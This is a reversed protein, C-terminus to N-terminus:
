FLTCLLEGGVGEEAAKKGSMVGKPTTLIATGLGRRVQPLARTTHYVRCGPTSERRLETIANRGDRDYKLHLRLTARHGEGELVEVDQLYGEDKMTTAIAAKLRSTPVDVYSKRVQIGNRIRTLLDAIPDTMTM